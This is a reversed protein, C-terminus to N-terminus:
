HSNKVASNRIILQGTYYEAQNDLPEGHLATLTYDVMRSIIQDLPHAYTTLEFAPWSAIAVNDFGVISIDRGPIRGFEEKCVQLCALAMHDNIAFIAETQPKKELIRRTAKAAGNFTYEGSVQMVQSFNFQECAHQFTTARRINASSNAIGSILAIHQHGLHNFLSAIDQTGAVDDTSICKIDGELTVNNFMITPIGADICGQAIVEARNSSAFIVADLSHNMIEELTPDRKSEGHTVFLVLRFGVDAFKDSLKQVFEPYLQNDLYTIAVGILYSRQMTLSRAIPNPRYHLTKAAAIIRDRVAPAVVGGNFVRSVTSKSTQALKAVDSGTPRKPPQLQGKKTGKTM